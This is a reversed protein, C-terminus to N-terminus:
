CNRLKWPFLLRKKRSFHSECVSGQQNPITNNVFEITCGQVTQLVEPDTTIKEWQPLFQKLRGAIFKAQAHSNIMKLSVEGITHSASGKSAMARGRTQGRGRGRLFMSPQPNAYGGRTSYQPYPLPYPSPRARGRGRAYYPGSHYYDGARTKPGGRGSSAMPRLRNSSNVDKVLREVNENGGYLYM